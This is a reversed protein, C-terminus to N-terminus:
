GGAAKRAVDAIDPVLSRVLLVGAIVLLVAGALGVGLRKWWEPDGLIGLLNAVLRFPAGLVDGVQRLAGEIGELPDPLDPISPGAFDDRGPAIIKGGGFFAETAAKDARALYRRYQGGTYTTWPRWNRGGNSIAVMAGANYPPENCLRAKNYQPHSPSNIQWLGWDNSPSPCVRREGYTGGSEALCIATAVKVAELSGLGAMMAVRAIDGDALTPM